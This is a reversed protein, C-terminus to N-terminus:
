CPVPVFALKRPATELIPDSYEILREISLVRERKNAVNYAVNIKVLADKRIDDLDLYRQFKDLNHIPICYSRVSDYVEVYLVDDELVMEKYHINDLYIVADGVVLDGHLAAQLKNAGQTIPDKGNVLDGLNEAIWIPAYTSVLLRLIPNTSEVTFPIM